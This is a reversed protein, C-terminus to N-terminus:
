SESIGPERDEEMDRFYALVAGAILCFPAIRTDMGIFLSVELMNYSISCALVMSLIKLTLPAQSFYLKIVKIALLICFALVLLLGPLGTFVLVQLFTNHFHTISDVWVLGIYEMIDQYLCGRLIRAPEMEMTVLVGKYILFRGSDSLGREDVYTSDDQSGSEQSENVSSDETTGVNEQVEEVTSVAIDSLRRVAATTGTFSLYILPIAVLVTVITVLVKSLMRKQPRFKLVALAILLATGGAFALETNRSFTMALALYNLLAAAVMCIRWLLNKKRFFLYLLLFISINFWMACINPHTGFLSLRSMDGEFYVLRAGSFPNYMERKLIIGYMGVLALLSYYGCYFISVWDMFCFRQKERLGLCVVLFAISLGIDMLLAGDYMLFLDGSLLRSIFVWVWYLIYLKVELPERYGKYYLAFGILVPTLYLYYVCYVSYWLSKNINQLLYYVLMVFVAAAFVQTYEPKRLARLKM